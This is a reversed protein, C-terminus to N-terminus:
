VLQIVVIYDGYSDNEADYFGKGKYEKQLSQLQIQDIIVNELPYPPCIMQNMDSSNYYFSGILNNGDRKWFSNNEYFMTIRVIYKKKTESDIVNRLEILKGEKWGKEIKITVNQNFLYGEFDGGQLVTSFPVTISCEYLETDNPLITTLDTSQIIKNKSGIFCPRQKNKNMFSKRTVEDYSYKVSIEMTFAKNMGFLQSGENLLTIKKNNKTKQILEKRSIEVFSCTDLEETSQKPSIRPIKIIEDKLLMLNISVEEIIEDESSRKKLQQTIPIEKEKEKTTEKISDKKIKSHIQEMMSQYLQRQLNRILISHHKIVENLRVKEKRLQIIEKTDKEHRNQHKEENEQIMKECENDKEKLKSNMLNFTEECEQHKENIIKNKQLIVENYEVLKEGIMEIEQKLQNNEETIISDIESTIRQQNIQGNSENNTNTNNQIMSYTENTLQSDPDINNQKLLSRLRNIEQKKMQIEEWFSNNLNVIEKELSVITNQEGTLLNCKPSNKEIICKNTKDYNTYICIKTKEKFKELRKRIKQAHEKIRKELTKNKPDDHSLEVIGDDEDENTEYFFFEEKTEDSEYPSKEGSILYFLLKLKHDVRLCRLTEVITKSIKKQDEPSCDPKMLEDLKKNVKDCCYHLYQFVKNEVDKIKLNLADFIITWGFDSIFQFALSDYREKDIETSHESM